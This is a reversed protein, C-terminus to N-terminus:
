AAAEKTEVGAIRRLEAAFEPPMQNRRVFEVAASLLVRRHNGGPLRYGPLEGADILKSVTRNACHLAAAIQGARLIPDVQM